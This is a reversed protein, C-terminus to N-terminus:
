SASHLAPRGPTVLGCPASAATNAPIEQVPRATLRGRSHTYSATVFCLTQEAPSGEVSCLFIFSFEFGHFGTPSLNLHIMAHFYLALFFEVLRVGYGQWLNGM